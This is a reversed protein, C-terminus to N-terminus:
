VAHPCTVFSMRNALIQVHRKGASRPPRAWALIHDGAAVHIRGLEVEDPIQHYQAVVLEVIRLVRRGVRAPTKIMSKDGGESVTLPYARTGGGAVLVALSKGEGVPVDRKALLRRIRQVAFLSAEFNGGRWPRGLEDLSAFLV